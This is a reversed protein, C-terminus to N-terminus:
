SFVKYLGAAIVSFLVADFIFIVTWVLRKLKPSPTDDYNNFFDNYNKM